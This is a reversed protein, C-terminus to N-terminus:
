SGFGPPRADDALQTQTTCGDSEYDYQAQDISSMTAISSSHSKADSEVDSDAEDNKVKLSDEVFEILAVAEKARRSSCLLGILHEVAEFYSPRLRVAATWYEMAEDKRNLALLTAALNSM